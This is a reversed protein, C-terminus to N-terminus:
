PAPSGGLRMLILAMSVIAALAAIAAAIAAYTAKSGEERGSGQSRSERLSKVDAILADFSRVNSASLTEVMAKLEARVGVVKEEMAKLLTTTETRPMLHKAQDDLQGRFENAKADHAQQASEAKSIAKESAAFTAATLREHAALADELARFHADYLRDREEIRVATERILVLLNGAAREADVAANSTSVPLMPTASVPPPRPASTRKATM